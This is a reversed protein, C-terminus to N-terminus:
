NSGAWRKWGASTKKQCTSKWRNACGTRPIGTKLEDLTQSLGKFHKGFVQDFRDFHKEDKILTTRALYYFADVDGFAVRKQLAELLTLFEKLTVPLGTDRLAYFFIM